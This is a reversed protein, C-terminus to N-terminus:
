RGGRPAPEGAGFEDVRQFGGADLGAVQEAAVQQAMRGVRVDVVAHDAVSALVSTIVVLVKKM